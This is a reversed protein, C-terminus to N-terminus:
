ARRETGTITTTATDTLALQGSTLTITQPTNFVSSDFVITDAGANANAQGVAWRLRAPAATTSRTSSPSRPRFAATRWRRWPRVSGTRRRAFRARSPAPSCNRIWSRMTM